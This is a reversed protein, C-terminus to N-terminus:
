TPTHVTLEKIVSYFLWSKLVPSTNRRSMPRKIPTLIDEIIRDEKIQQKDEPSMPVLTIGAQKALDNLIEMFSKKEYLELFKFVDGGVGCGFCHFYQREPNVSFSPTKEHHFPCLAKHHGDLKIHQSIVKVIDTQERVKEILEKFEVDKVAQKKGESGM